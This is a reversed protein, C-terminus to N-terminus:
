AGVRRKWGIEAALKRHIDNDLLPKPAPQYRTAVIRPRFLRRIFKWVM